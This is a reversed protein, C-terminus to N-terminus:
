IVRFYQLVILLIQLCLSARINPVTCYLNQEFTKWHVNCDRVTHTCLVYM